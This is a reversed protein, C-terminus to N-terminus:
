FGVQIMITKIIKTTIEFSGGIHYLILVNNSGMKKIEIGVYNKNQTCVFKLKDVQNLKYKNENCFKNLKSLIQEQTSTTTCLSSSVSNHPKNNQNDDSINNKNDINTNKTKSISKKNVKTSTNISAKVKNLTQSSIKKKNTIDIDILAPQKYNLSRRIKTKGSTASNTSNSSNSSPTRITKNNYYNNDNKYQLNNKKIGQNTKIGGFSFTNKHSNQNSKTNSKNNLKINTSLKVKNKNRHEPSSITDDMLNITNSPIYKNIINDLKKKKKHIVSGSDYTISTDIKNSYHTKSTALNLKNETRISTEKLINNLITKNLPALNTYKPGMVEINSLLGNSKIIREVNLSSDREAKNILSIKNRNKTNLCNTNNASNERTKQRNSVTSLYSLKYEKKKNDLTIEKLNEKLNEMNGNSFKKIHINMTNKSHADISNPSMTSSPKSTNDSNSNVEQLKKSSIPESKELTSPNPTEKNVDKLIDKSILHNIRKLISKDKNEDASLNHRHIHIPNNSYLSNTISINPINSNPTNNISSTNDQKNQSDPSKTKNSTLDVINTNVIDVKNINNTNVTNNNNDQKNNNNEELLDINVINTQVTNGKYDHGLKKLLLYYTTTVSNHKNNNLYNKIDDANAVKMEIQMKNIIHTNIYPIIKIKQQEEDLYNIKHIITGGFKNIYWKKGHALFPHSIIDEMNIRKRPDTVLIKKILDKCNDSLKDPLDFAGSLIKDYLRMNNKDEFPLYGCVMAYLVIGSSWIDVLLGNYPHNKIMEPAAYCPSGCSTKLFKGPKYKNSLGFDIITLINDDKLLLNEPKIDRHVICHQHMFSLGQMLQMFFISAIKENLRKREVIYNFLEGKDALEMIINYNKHDDIIQYIKIINPHNLEKLFKIERSLRDADEQDIKDKELIKIAVKEGTPSHTAIRVKGFTGEGIKKGLEFNEIIKVTMKNTM